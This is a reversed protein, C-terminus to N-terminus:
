ILRASRCTPSQCGWTTTTGVTVLAAHALFRDRKTREDLNACSCPHDPDPQEDHALGMYGPPIGLGTAIDTLTEYSEVKAGAIIRAVAQDPHGTLTAIRARPVGHHTLLRYVTSIDRSALAARMEHQEWLDPLDPRPRVVPQVAREATAPGPATAATWEVWAWEPEVPGASGAPDAPGAPEAPKAPTDPDATSLAVGHVANRFRYPVASSAPIGCASGALIAAVSDSPPGGRWYLELVDGVVIGDLWAAGRWLPLRRLVGSMLDAPLDPAPAAERPDLEDTLALDVPLGAAVAQRWRERTVGLLRVQGDPSRLDLHNRRPHVRLGPVGRVRDGAVVPLAETLLQDLAADHVRLGLVKADPRVRSVLSTPRLAHGRRRMGAMARNAAALLSAEFRRQGPLCASPVLSDPEVGGRQRRVMNPTEGTCWYRKALSSTSM